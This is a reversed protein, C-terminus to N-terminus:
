TNGALGTRWSASGPEDTATRSLFLTPIDRIFFERSLGFSTAARIAGRRTKAQFRNIGSRYPGSLHRFCFKLNCEGLGSLCVLLRSSRKEICETGQGVFLDFLVAFEDQGAEPLQYFLLPFRPHTEVGLRLLLDPDRSLGDDFETNRLRCLVSNESYLLLYSRARAGASFKCDNGTPEHDLLAKLGLFSLGVFIFRGVKEKMWGM